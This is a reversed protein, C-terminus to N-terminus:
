FINIFVIIIFLVLIDSTQSLFSSYVVIQTCYSYTRIIMESFVNKLFECKSMDLQIYAAVSFFGLSLFFSFVGERSSGTLIVVCGSGVSDFYLLM